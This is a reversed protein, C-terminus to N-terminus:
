CGVLSYKLLWRVEQRMRGPPMEPLVPGNRLILERQKVSQRQQAVVLHRREAAPGRERPFFAFLTKIRIFLGMM